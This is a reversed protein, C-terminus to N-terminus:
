GYKTAPLSEAAKRDSAAVWVACVRLTTAGVGAMIALTSHGCCRRGVAGQSTGSWSRLELGDSPVPRDCSRGHLVSGQKLVAGDQAPQGGVRLRSRGDGLNTPGSPFRLHM